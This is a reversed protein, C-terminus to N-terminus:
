PKKENTKGREVAPNGYVITDDPVNKTVVSGAGVIVNKGITLNPLIVAGAGVFSFEAITINGALTAGPGIHCGHGIICEHDVSANSNIIVYKGLQVKVGICASALLQCGESIMVTKSMIASPHVANIPSLGHSKLMDALTIRDNGRVGGIAIVFNIGATNNIRQLWDMFGEKGYYIPVKELPSIVQDNRDFVAVAKYKKSLFDNLVIAQGTGGWYILKNGM